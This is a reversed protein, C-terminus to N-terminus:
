SLLIGIRPMRRRSREALDKAIDNWHEMCRAINFAPWVAARIL